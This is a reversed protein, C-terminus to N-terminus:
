GAAFGGEPRQSRAPEASGMGIVPRGSAQPGQDAQSAPARGPASESPLEVFFCSGAEVSSEAWCAGGHAQVIERSIALGLGSSGAARAKDVQYFREFVRPLDEAPIFSGSNRVSLVVAASSDFPTTARDASRTLRVAIAGGVPTHRLANDLLNDVVRELHRPDGRVLAAEAPEWTLRVGAEEARLAVAAVRSGVLPGLDLARGEIPLQGSEMKSLYLLDDVLHSMRAAEQNIVRGAEAVESASGVTGDTLAQSFGQISTLPTRLDHSVNALFDRLTRQSVSVEHAMRNFAAALRAVEDRGPAQIKQDFRGQAIGEAARTMGTLPRAISAALLWALAVSLLLAGLAALALRPLLELWATALTQRPVSLGLVYQVQRGLFREGLSAGPAPAQGAPGARAISPGQVPSVMFLADGELGAVTAQRVRRQLGFRAGSQIRLQQGVLSDETDAFVRGRPDALVLRLDLEDAQRELFEVIEVSTAGLLELQRVQNSLPLTLEAIRNTERRIQYDRLIFVFGLGALFLTVLIVSAFAV